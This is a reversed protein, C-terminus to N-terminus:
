KEFCFLPGLKLLQRTRRHLCGGSILVCSFGAHPLHSGLDWARGEGRKGLAALMTSIGRPCTGLTSLVKISKRGCCLCGPVVALTSLLRRVSCPMRPRELLPLVSAIVDIDPPPPKQTLLQLLYCLRLSQGHLPRWRPLLFAECVQQCM